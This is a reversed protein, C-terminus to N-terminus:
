EGAAVWGGGCGLNKEVFATFTHPQGVRNTQSPTIHIRADVFTKVANSGNQGTGDTQVVIPGPPLGNPVNGLDALSSSAHGTVQGPTPSTFTVSFMGARTRRGAHVPGGSDRIAGNNTLTITVPENGAADVWGGGLGLNKEVFATFTHPQGVRNTQTPTIHIRADVFTKVADSGNQGTGDTQVVIPGPPNGNPM